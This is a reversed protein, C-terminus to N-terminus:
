RRAKETKRTKRTKRAKKARRGKRTITPATAEYRAVLAQKAELDRTTATLRQHLEKASSRLGQFNRLQRIGEPTTVDLRPTNRLVGIETRIMTRYNRIFGELITVRQRTLQYQSKSITAVATGAAAVTATGAATATATGTGENEVFRPAQGIVIGPPPMLVGAAAASASNPLSPRVANEIARNRGTRANEAERHSAATGRSIGELWNVYNLLEEQLIAHKTEVARLTSRVDEFGRIIGPPLVPSLDTSRIHTFLRSQLDDVAAFLSAVTADAVGKGHIQGYRSMIQTDSLRTMDGTMHPHSGKFAAWANGWTRSM